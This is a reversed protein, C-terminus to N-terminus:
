ENTTVENDAPVAVPAKIADQAVNFANSIKAFPDSDALFETFSNNFLSKIDTGLSNFAQEASENVRYLELLNNPMSSFDGYFGRVKDLSTRDGLEYRAILTHLDVSDAHSQIYEYLNTEDVKVLDQSGDELTCLKMVDAVASGPESYTHPVPNVRSFFSVKTKTM